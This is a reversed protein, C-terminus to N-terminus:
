ELLRNKFGDTENFKKLYQFIGNAILLLIKKRKEKDSLYTIDKKSSIFGLEILISPMVSGKLVYFLESKVGRNGSYGIAHGLLKEAIYSAMLKSEKQYQIVEIRGFIKEFESLTDMNSKSLDFNEKKVLSVIRADISKAQHSLYYVEFGSTQPDFWFNLHVSIFIGNEGKKLQSNALHCRKELSLYKDKNRIFIIRTKSTKKKLISGLEKTALLAIDKEKFGYSLAGSDKGGHGADLFIVDVKQSKNNLKLFPINKETTLSLSKKKSKKQNKSGDNNVSKKQSNSYAGLLKIFKMVENSNMQLGKKNYYPLTKFRYYHDNIKYIPNHEQIEILIGKKAFLHKESVKSFSSSYNKETLIKSISLESAFVSKNLIWALTFFILISLFFHSERSCQRFFNM